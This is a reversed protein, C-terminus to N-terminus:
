YIDMATADCADYMSKKVNKKREPRASVSTSDLDYISDEPDHCGKWCAVADEIYRRVREVTAGSPMDLTVVFRRRKSRKRRSRSM